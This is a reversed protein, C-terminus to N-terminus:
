LVYEKSIHIKHVKESSVKKPEELFSLTQVAKVVLADMRLQCIKRKKFIFVM